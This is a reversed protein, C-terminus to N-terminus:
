MYDSKEDKDEVITSITELLENSSHQQEKNFSQSQSESSTESEGMNFDLSFNMDGNFNKALAAKLMSQSEEMAELTTSSSMNLSITLGNEKNSKMTIAINGLHAPMLNIRFATVPPKYNQAMERAVDSMMSGMNQRAGIIRSQISSALIPNINVIVPEEIVNVNSSTSSSNLVTAISQLDVKVINKNFALKDLLNSKFSDKVELKELENETTVSAKQANLELIKAGKSVDEISTANNLVEKAIASQQISVNNVKNQQNQLFINSVVESKPAVTDDKQAKPNVTSSSDKSVSIEKKDNNILKDLLSNTEKEKIQAKDNQLSEKSINVKQEKTNTNLSALEKAVTENKVSSEPKKVESEVKISTENKVKNVVIKEDVQTTTKSIIEDKNRSNDSVKQINESINQNKLNETKIEKKVVINKTNETSKVEKKVVSENVVEKSITSQDTKQLTDFLSAEKPITEKSSSILNNKDIKTPKKEETKLDINNEKSELSETEEVIVKTNVTKEEVKTIIKSVIEDRNKSNDSIKQINELVNQNKLNEKSESKNESITPTQPKSEEINENIGINKDVKVDVKINLDVDKDIITKAEMVMRDLLSKPEEKTNQLKSEGKITTKELINSSNKIELSDEKIVKENSTKTETPTQIKTQKETSNSEDTVVESSVDKLLSDFLSAGEKKTNTTSSSTKVETDTLLLGIEKTM